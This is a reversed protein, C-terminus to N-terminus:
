YRKTSEGKRCARYRLRALGAGVLESGLVGDASNLLDCLSDIQELSCGYAVSQLAIDANEVALKDM